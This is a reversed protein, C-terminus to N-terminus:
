ELSLGLEEFNEKHGYPVIEIPMSDGWQLRNRKTNMAKDYSLYAKMRIDFTKLIQALSASTGQDLFGIPRHGMANHVTTVSGQINSIPM